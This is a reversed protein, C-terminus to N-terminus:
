VLDIPRNLSSFDSLRGDAGYVGRSAASNRLLQLAVQTRRMQEEILKGNVQNQRDSAHVLKVLDRWAGPPAPHAHVRAELESLPTSPPLGAAQALASWRNALNQHLAHRRPLLASLRDTDQSALAQAEDDLFANFEKLTEILAALPANFDPM